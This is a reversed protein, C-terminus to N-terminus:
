LKEPRVDAVATVVAGQEKLGEYCSAHRHGMGGCGIIGIKIM